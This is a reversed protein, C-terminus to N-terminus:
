FWEKRIFDQIIFDIWHSSNWEDIKLNFNKPPEFIANTDEYRGRNITNMWILYDPNFIERMQTLPAVFDCIMFEAHSQASLDRMRISQRIRGEESFDWDNYKSRVIDANLWEVSSKVELSKKLNSSLTTKGSGPLGMVLIKKMKLKKRITNLSCASSM